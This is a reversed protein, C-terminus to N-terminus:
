TVNRINACRISVMAEVLRFDYETDIDAARELPVKVASVRGDFLRQGHLIFQPRVAYAVTTIDYVKPVDQRRAINGASGIVIEACDDDDLHVMNFYPSRSAETVTIVADTTPESQLREICATVDEVARLPSTAPLSLFCDFMGRAEIFWSVAHQWALWEPSDDCALEAPRLFPVEAGHALAVSSIEEDDTSVIVSEVGPTALGM